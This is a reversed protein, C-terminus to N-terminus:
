VQLSTKYITLKETAAANVHKPKLSEDVNASICFYAFKCLVTTNEDIEENTTLGHSQTQTWFM